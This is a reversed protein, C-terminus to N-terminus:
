LTSVEGEVGAKGETGGEGGLIRPGHSRCEIRLVFMGKREASKKLAGRKVIGERGEDAEEVVGFASNTFVRNAETHLM